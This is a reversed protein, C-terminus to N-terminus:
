NTETFIAELKADHPETPLTHTAQCNFALGVFAPKNTQCAALTRDYFGAGMGLRGNEKDFGVLPAIILDLQKTEITNTNSPELIGYQNKQMACDNTYLSFHLAKTKANIVPLYCQKGLQWLTKILTCTEVEGDNPLYCAIHQSKQFITSSICQKCISLSFRHHINPALSRRKKRLAIRLSHKDNM